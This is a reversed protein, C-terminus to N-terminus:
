DGAGFLGGPSTPTNPDHLAIYIVNTRVLFQADAIWLVQDQLGRVLNERGTKDVGM